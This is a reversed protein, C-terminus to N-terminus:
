VATSAARAVAERPFRVGPPPQPTPRASTASGSTTSATWRAGNPKGGITRVCVARRAKVTKRRHANRIDSALQSATTKKMPAGARRRNGTDRRCEEFVEQWMSFRPKQRNSPPESPVSFRGHGLSSQVTVGDLRCGRGSPRPSRSTSEIAPTWAVSSGSRVEGSQEGAVEDFHQPRVPPGDNSAPTSGAPARRGSCPMSLMPVHECDFRVSM